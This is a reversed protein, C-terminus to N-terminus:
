HLVIWWSFPSTGSACIDRMLPIRRTHDHEPEGIVPMILATPGPAEGTQQNLVRWRGINVTQQDHNEDTM